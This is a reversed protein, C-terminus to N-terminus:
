KFLLFTESTILCFINACLIEKTMFIISGSVIFNHFMINVEGYKPYPFVSM